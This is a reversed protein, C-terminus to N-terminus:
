PDQRSGRAPSSARGPQVVSDDGSAEQCAHEQRVPERLNVLAAHTWTDYLRKEMALQLPIDSQIGFVARLDFAHINHGIIWRAKLIQDRIEELSTTLVVEGDGWAYGILRVFEEPPMSYLLEASHTEIDFVLTGEPM